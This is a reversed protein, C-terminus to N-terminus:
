GMLTNIAFEVVEHGTMPPNNLCYHSDYNKKVYDILAQRRGEYTGMFVLLMKQSEEFDKIAKDKDPGIPYLSIAKEKIITMRTRDLLNIRANSVEEYIDRYRYDIHDQKKKFM